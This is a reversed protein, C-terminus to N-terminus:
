AYGPSYVHVEGAMERALLAEHLGSAAAGVVHPRIVDFSPWAAFAKLAILLRAGAREALGAIQIANDELKGLDVVYAPTEVSLLEAAREWEAAPVVASRM